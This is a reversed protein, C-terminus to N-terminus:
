LFYLHFVVGFVALLRVYQVSVYELSSSVQKWSEGPAAVQVEM